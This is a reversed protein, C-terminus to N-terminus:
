AVVAFDDSSPPPRPPPSNWVEVSSCTVRSKGVFIDFKLQKRAPLSSKLFVPYNIPNEVNCNLLHSTAFDLM